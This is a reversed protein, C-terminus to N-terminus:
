GASNSKAVLVTTVARAVREPHHVIDDWTFRLVTWGMAVLENQRSRDHRFVDLSAHSEYGDVEIAVGAAPYAFDIRGVLRAGSRVEYQCTPEPLEQTRCLRLMRAELVSEALGDAGSRDDLLARLAGAGRRGRRAVSGLGLRLGDLTVLRKSLAIDLAREVSRYGQVAGLDVLTRVPTTLPIGNRATMVGPGLDSSRHVTVGQLRHYREATVSLEVMPRRSNDLGWLRAASRHSAVAGDGAALCAALVQQEWTAPAGAARYVGAHVKDWCGTERRNQIQRLSYGAGLAQDLTFLAM